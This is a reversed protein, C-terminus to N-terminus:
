HYTKRLAVSVAQPSAWFFIRSKSIAEKWVKYVTGNSKPSSLTTFQHHEHLVKEPRDHDQEQLSICPRLGQYVVRLSPDM